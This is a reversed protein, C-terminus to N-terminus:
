LHSCCPSGQAHQLGRPSGRSTLMMGAAAQFVHGTAWLTWGATQTQIWPLQRSKLSHLMASLAALWVTLPGPLPQTVQFLAKSIQQLWLLIQFDIFLLLFLALYGDSFSSPCGSLKKWSCM